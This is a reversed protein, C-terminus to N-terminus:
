KVKRLKRKDIMEKIKNQCNKINTCLILYKKIKGKKEADKRMLKMIALHRKYGTINMKIVM